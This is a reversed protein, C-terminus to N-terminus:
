VGGEGDAFVDGGDGEGPYCGVVRVGRRAYGGDGEDEKEEAQAPDGGAELAKLAAEEGGLGLLGLTPASPAEM